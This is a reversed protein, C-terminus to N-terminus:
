EASVEVRRAPAQEPGHGPARRDRWALKMVLVSAALAFTVGNATLLPRSGILIGYALWLGVGACFVVYMALSIDRASRTRWVKLVQPLFALTTCGAALM